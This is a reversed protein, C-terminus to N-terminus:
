LVYYDNSNAHLVTVKVAIIDHHNIFSNSYLKQQICNIVNDNHFKLTCCSRLITISINNYKKINLIKSINMYTERYYLRM